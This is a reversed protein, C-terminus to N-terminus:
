PSEPSGNRRKEPDAVAVDVGRDMVGEVSSDNKKPMCDLESGPTLHPSVKKFSFIVLPM